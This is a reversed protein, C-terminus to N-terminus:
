ASHPKRPVGPLGAATSGPPPSVDACVQGHGLVPPPLRPSSSGLWRLHPSFTPLPIDRNGIPTCAAFLPPLKLLSRPEFLCLSPACSTLASDADQLTTVSQGAAAVVAHLSHVSPYAKTHDGVVRDVDPFAQHGLECSSGCCWGASGPPMRRFVAM